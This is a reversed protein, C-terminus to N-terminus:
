AAVVTPEVQMLGEGPGLGGGVLVGAVLLLAVLLMAAAILVVPARRPSEMAGSTGNRREIFRSRDFIEDAMTTLLARMRMDRCGGERAVRKKQAAEEQKCPEAYRAPTLQANAPLSSPM